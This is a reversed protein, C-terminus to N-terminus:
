SAPTWRTRLLAQFLDPTTAGARLAFQAAAAFREDDAPNVLLTPELERDAGRSARGKGAQGSITHAKPVDGMVRSRSPTDRSRGYPPAGPVDRTRPRDRSSSFRAGLRETGARGGVGPRPPWFGGCEWHVTEYTEAANVSYMWSVCSVCPVPDILTRPRESGRPSTVDYDVVEAELRRALRERDREGTRSAAEAEREDALDDVVGRAVRIEELEESGERAAPDAEIVDLEDVELPDLQCEEVLQVQREELVAEQGRRRGFLVQEEPHGAPEAIAQRRAVKLGNHGVHGVDALEESAQDGAAQQISRGPARVSERQWQEAAVQAPM